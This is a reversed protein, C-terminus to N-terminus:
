PDEVWRPFARSLVARTSDHRRVASLTREVSAQVANYAAIERTLADRFAALPFSVPWGTVAHETLERLHVRDGRRQARFRQQYVNFFLPAESEAAHRALATWRRAYSTISLTSAILGPRAAVIRHGWPEADAHFLFGGSYELPSVAGPRGAQRLWSTVLKGVRATRATGDSRLLDRAAIFTQEFPSRGEPDHRMLEDSVHKRFFYTPSLESVIRPM